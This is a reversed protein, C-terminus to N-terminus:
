EKKEGAEIPRLKMSAEFLAKREQETLNSTDYHQQEPQKQKNDKEYFGIHKNIKEITWEKGHLKLEIEGYRNQKISEICMLQEETLQDFPKFFLKPILVPNGNEDTEGTRIMKYEVYEDIRANRLINLHRLMEEADINLKEKAVKAVQQQLQEIRVLVKGVKAVENAKVWIVEPKMNKTSYAERYAASKDGLRVFAQCFAEQKKTLGTIKNKCQM